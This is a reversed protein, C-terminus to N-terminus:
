YLMGIIENTELKEIFYKLTDKTLQNNDGKLINYISEINEDNFLNEM